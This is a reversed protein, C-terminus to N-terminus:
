ADVAQSADHGRRRRRESPSDLRKPVGQLLGSVGTAAGAHVYVLVERGRMSPELGGRVCGSLPQRRSSRLIAAACMCVSMLTAHLRFLWSGSM